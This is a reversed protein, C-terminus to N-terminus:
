KLSNVLLGWFLGPGFQETRPKKGPKKRSTGNWATVIFAGSSAGPGECGGMLAVLGDLLSCMGPYGRPLFHKNTWVTTRLLIFQKVMSIDSRHAAHGLGLNQLETFFFRYVWPQIFM